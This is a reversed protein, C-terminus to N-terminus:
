IKELINKYISEFNNSDTKVYKLIDDFIKEIYKFKKIENTYDFNFKNMDLYLYEYVLCITRVVNENIITEVDDYGYEEIFDNKLYEYKKLDIYKNTLPNVFSHCYEHLTTLMMDYKNLEWDEYLNLKKSFQTIGLNSYINNDIFSSYNSYSNFPIANVYLKKEKVDIFKNIYSLINEHKSMMSDVYMNYLYENNKYYDEFNIDISFQELSNIFEYISNDKELIQEYIYDNLKNCKFNEDLQLITTVPADYNFYPHIKILNNFLIITNHEKFKGFLNIIKDYIYKNNLPIMKNKVIKKYDDSLILIISLLETRYDVEYTIGDKEKFISKM